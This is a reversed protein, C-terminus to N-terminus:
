HTHTCYFNHLLIIIAKCNSLSFYICTQASITRNVKEQESKKNKIKLKQRESIGTIKIVHVSPLLKYDHCVFHFLTWCVSWSSRGVVICCIDKSIQQPLGHIKKAKMEICNLMKRWSWNCICMWIHLSLFVLILFLIGCKYITVSFLIKAQKTSKKQYTNCPHESHKDTYKM